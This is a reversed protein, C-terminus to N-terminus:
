KRLYHILVNSHTQLRTQLNEERYKNEPWLTIQRDLGSETQIIDYRRLDKDHDQSKLEFSPLQHNGHPVFESVWKFMNKDYYVIHSVNQCTATGRNLINLLMKELGEANPPWIAPGLHANCVCLALWKAAPHSMLPSVQIFTQTHTITQKNFSSEATQSLKLGYLWKRPVSHQATRSMAVKKMSLNQREWVVSNVQVFLWRVM